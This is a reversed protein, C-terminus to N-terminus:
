VVSKGRAIDTNKNLMHYISTLQTTVRDQIFFLEGYQINRVTYTQILAIHDRHDEVVVMVVTLRTDM